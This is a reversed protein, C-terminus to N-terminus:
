AADGTRRCRAWIWDGMAVLAAAGALSAGPQLGLFYRDWALPLMVTVVVLALGAQILVAWSTPAEARQWQRRGWLGLMGVGALVLPLWLLAGADQNWDYRRTSDFWWIQRTEDFRKQGLPGFRGFGQVAVAAAKEPLTRLANHPFMEQQGRPVSLRHAIVARNRAVLGGEALTQIAKPVRAPQSTLLPNGVVFMGFAVLGALLTGGVMALRRRVPVQGRVLGLGAWAGLTMLGLGGNLKSLVALGAPVGALALVLVGRGAGWKGEIVRKWAWLGIAATLLVLAETPADAMARRALMRYLPNALLLTSAILGLPVGRAMTGIAFLAMCGIAGSIVSPWRAAVLMARTGSKSSTNRYWDAAATPPPLRYGAAKLSLGILYKPLPPLDLAPYDLWLPHDPQALLDFYFAQSVYAWEDVFEPETALNHSLVALALAVVGLAWAWARQPRCPALTM